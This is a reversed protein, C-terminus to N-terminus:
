YEYICALVMKELEGLKTNETFFGMREMLDTHRIKIRMYPFVQNHGDVFKNNRKPSSKFVDLAIPASWQDLGGAGFDKSMVNGSVPLHRVGVAHGLEHLIVEYTKNSLAYAGYNNDVNFLLKTLMLSDPRVEEEDATNIYIDAEAMKPSRSDPSYESEYFTLGWGTDEHPSPNFYIVSENDELNAYGNDEWDRWFFSPLRFNDPPDEVIEILLGGSRPTVAENWVEVAREILELYESSGEGLYLRMPEEWGAYAYADCLTGPTVVVDYNKPILFGSWHAGDMPTGPNESADVTM